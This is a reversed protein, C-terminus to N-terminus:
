IQKISQTILVTNITPLSHLQMILVSLEVVALVGLGIAYGPDVEVPHAVSPDLVVQVCHAHVQSSVDTGVKVDWGTKLLILNVINKTTTVNLNLFLPRYITM